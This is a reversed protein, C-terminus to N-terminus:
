LVGLLKLEKFELVQLDWPYQERFQNIKQWVRSVAEPRIYGKCWAEDESRTNKNCGCLCLVM